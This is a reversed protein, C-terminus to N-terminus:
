FGTSFLILALTLCYSSFVLFDVCLTDLFAVVVSCQLFIRLVKPLIVPLWSGTGTGNNKCSGTFCYRVHCSLIPCSLIVYPLTAIYASVVYSHRWAAVSRDEGVNVNRYINVPRRLHVTFARHTGSIRRHLRCIKVTFALGFLGPKGFFVVYYTKSLSCVPM